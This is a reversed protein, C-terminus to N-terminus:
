EHVCPGGMGCFVCVYRACAFARLQAQEGAGDLVRLQLVVPVTDLQLLQGSLPPGASVWNSRESILTVRLRASRNVLTSVPYPSVAFRTPTPTPAVTHQTHPPKYTTTLTPKQHPLPSPSGSQSIALAAM